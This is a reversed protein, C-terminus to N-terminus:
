SDGIPPVTMRYMGGFQDSAIMRGKNDFCMSVWSGQDNEGPSYIREAVFGEPLKLKKIKPDNSEPTVMESDTADNCSFCAIVLAFAFLKVFPFRNYM